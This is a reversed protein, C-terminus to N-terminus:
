GSFGEINIELLCPKNDANLVIDLAVLDHHLVHESVKLAFCKKILYKLLYRM